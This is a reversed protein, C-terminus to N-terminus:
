TNSKREKVVTEVHTLVALTIDKALRSKESGAPMKSLTDAEKIFAEWECDPSDHQLNYYQKLIRWAENFIAREETVQESTAIQIM